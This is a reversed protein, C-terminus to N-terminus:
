RQAAQEARKRELLKNIRHVPNLLNSISQDHNLNDVIYAIYKSLDVSTYWERKLLEPTRYVVNTTFVRSIEGREYAADFKELGANFLGFTTCIFIRNAGMKKLKVAIDLVSEGSSIMDDVVIM